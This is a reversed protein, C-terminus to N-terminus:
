IGGVWRTRNFRLFGHFVLGGVRHLGVQATDHSLSQSDTFAMAASVAKNRHGLTEMIRWARLLHKGPCLCPSSVNPVRTTQYDASPVMSVQNQLLIISESWTSRVRSLEKLFVIRFDLHLWYAMGHVTQTKTPYALFCKPPKGACGSYTWMITEGQHEDGWNDWSLRLDGKVMDTLEQHSSVGTSLWTFDLGLFPWTLIFKSFAQLLKELLM